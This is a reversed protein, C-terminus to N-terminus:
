GVSARAGASIISRLVGVPLTPAASGAHQEAFVNVVESRPGTDLV